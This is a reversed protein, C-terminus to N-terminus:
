QAAGAHIRLNEFLDARHFYYKMEETDAYDPQGHESLDIDSKIIDIMLEIQTITLKM